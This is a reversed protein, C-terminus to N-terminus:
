KVELTTGQGSLFEQAQHSDTTCITELEGDEGIRAVSASMFRGELDISASGDPHIVEVLGDDDRRLMQQLQLDAAKDTATAHVLEGTEPDISVRMAATGPAIGDAPEDATLAWPLAVALVLSATAVAIRSRNRTFNIRKM